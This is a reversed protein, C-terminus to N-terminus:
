SNNPSEHAWTPRVQHGSTATTDDLRSRLNPGQEETHDTTTFPGAALLWAAGGVLAVFGLSVCLGHLGCPARKKGNGNGHQAANGNRGAVRSEAVRKVM